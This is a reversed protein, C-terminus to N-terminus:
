IYTLTMDRKYIDMVVKWVVTEEISSYFTRKNIDKIKQESSMM